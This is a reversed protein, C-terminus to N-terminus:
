RNIKIVLRTVALFGEFTVILLTPSVKKLCVTCTINQSMAFAIYYQMCHMYICYLVIYCVVHSKKFHLV